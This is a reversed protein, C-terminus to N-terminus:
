TLLNVAKVLEDAQKHIYVSSTIDNQSHGVIIKLTVDNVGATHMRSIFTHRTEHITHNDFRKAFPRQFRHYDMPNGKDDHILWEGGDLRKEIFPRIRHHIPIIRDKGADTKKGGIMHDGHVNSQKIELMETVRMGTYLLILVTELFEDKEADLWLKEIEEETFVNKPKKKDNRKRIELHMAPNRETWEYKIAHKFLKSAIGKIQSQTSAGKGQLLEDLHIFRIDDINMDHIPECHGFGARWASQASRSGKEYENQKWHEWVDKFTMPKNSLDHPNMNYQALAQIADMKTEYYGVYKRVQKGDKWEVTVRLGYPKRRNGSLKM